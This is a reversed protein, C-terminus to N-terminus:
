VPKDKYGSIIYRGTMDKFTVVTKHASMLIKQRQAKDGVDENPRESPVENNVNYTVARLIGIVDKDFKYAQKSNLCDNTYNNALDTVFIYEADYNDSEKLKNRDCPVYLCCPSEVFDGSFQIKKVEDYNWNKNKEDRDTYTQIMTFLGDFIKLATKNDTKDLNQKIMNIETFFIYDFMIKLNIDSPEQIYEKYMDYIETYTYGSKKSVGSKLNKITEYDNSKGFLFTSKTTFTDYYKGWPNINISRTVKMAEYEAKTFTRRNLDKGIFIALMAIASPYVMFIPVSQMLAAAIIMCQASQKTLYSYNYHKKLADKIRDVLTIRTLLKSDESGEKDKAMAGGDKLPVKNGDEGLPTLVDEPVLGSIGYIYLDDRVKGAGIDKILVDSGVIRANDGDKEFDVLNRYGIPEDSGFDNISTVPRRIFFLSIKSKIAEVNEKMKKLEDVTAKDPILITKNKSRSIGVIIYSLELEELLELFKGEDNDSYAKKVKEHDEDM